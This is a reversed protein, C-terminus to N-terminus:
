FGCRPLDDEARGVGWVFEYVQTGAAQLRCIEMDCVFKRLLIQFLSRRKWGVAVSGSLDIRHLAGNEPRQRLVALDFCYLLTEPPIVDCLPARAFKPEGGRGLLSRTWFESGQRSSRSM